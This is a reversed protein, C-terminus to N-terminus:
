AMVGEMRLLRYGTHCLLELASPVGERRHCEGKIILVERAALVVTLASIQARAERPAANLEVMATTFAANSPCIQSSFPTSGLPLEGELRYLCVLDEAM